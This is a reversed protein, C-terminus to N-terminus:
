LTPQVTIEKTFGAKVETTPLANIMLQIVRSQYIVQKHILDSEAKYNKIENFLFLSLVFLLITLLYPVASAAKRFFQSQVPKSSSTQINRLIREELEFPFEAISSETITKIRNLQKFYERGEEDGSLLSFMLAEKNKDLEGDFYESIMLQIKENSM